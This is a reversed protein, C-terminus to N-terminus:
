ASDKPLSHVHAMTRRWAPLAAGVRRRLPIGFM